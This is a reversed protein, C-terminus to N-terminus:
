NVCKVRLQLTSLNPKFESLQKKKMLMLVCLLMEHLGLCCPARLCLSYSCCLLSKWADMAKHHRIWIAGFKCDLPARWMTFSVNWIYLLNRWNNRFYLCDFKQFFDEKIRRKRKKACKAFVMIEHTHMSWNPQFIQPRFAFVMILNLTFRILTWPTILSEVCFVFNFKQSM